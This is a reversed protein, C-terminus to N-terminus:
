DKSIAEDMNLLVSAVATHAALDVVDLSKDRPSEGQNLFQEAAAPSQRFREEHKQLSARLVALERATPTRSTALRFGYALQTEPTKGGETLMREAFKRAAEMYTVDNLLALAQLPTNTKARRV